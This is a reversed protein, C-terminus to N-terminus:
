KTGSAFCSPTQPTAVSNHPFFPTQNTHRPTLLDFTPTTAIHTDGGHTTRQFTTITATPATTTTLFAFTYNDNICRHQGLGFNPPIQM